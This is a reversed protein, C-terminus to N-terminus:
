AMIQGLRYGVKLALGVSDACDTKDPQQAQIKYRNIGACFYTINMLLAPMSYECAISKEVPISLSAFDALRSTRM